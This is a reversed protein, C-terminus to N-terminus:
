VAGRAVSGRTRLWDAVLLAVGAVLELLGGILSVYSVADVTGESPEKPVDLGSLLHHYSWRYLDEPASLLHLALSLAAGALLLLGVLRV